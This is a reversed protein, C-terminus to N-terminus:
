NSCFIGVFSRSFCLVVFKYYYYYYYNIIPRILIIIISMNMLFNMTPQQLQIAQHRLHATSKHTNYEYLTTNRLDNNGGGWKLIFSSNCKQRPFEQTITARTTSMIIYDLSNEHRRILGGPSGTIAAPNESKESSSQTRGVTVRPITAWTDSGTAMNCVVHQMCDPALPPAKNLHVPSRTPSMEHLTTSVPVFASKGRRLMATGALTRASGNFLKRSVPPLRCFRHKQSVPSCFLFQGLFTLDV